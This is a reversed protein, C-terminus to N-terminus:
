GLKVTLLRCYDTAAADTPDRFRESIALTSVAVVEDQWILLPIAQRRWPPVDLDRLVEKIDTQRGRWRITLDKRRTSLCLKGPSYFGGEHGAAVKKLTWLQGGFEISEGAPLSAPLADATRAYVSLDAEYYFHDRWGLLVCDAALDLRSVAGQQSQRCFEDLAKDTIKFHGRLELFVRLWARRSIESEPLEAVSVKDGYKQLLEHLLANQGQQWSTVRQVAQDLSPWRQMLLPMIRHRLFNRTLGEDRNSPDEIWAIEQQHLYDLVQQRTLALLPRLFDAEGLRGSVRMPLLSRGQLLRMFVTELQDQSHHGLLLTEDTQLQSAFFDYRAQRAAAEVNGSVLDLSGVVLGAGLQKCLHQCHEVWESSLPHLRHNGHLARVNAAGVVRCAAVLLATSDAGGSLGVCFKQDPRHALILEKLQSQLQQEFPHLQRGDLSM